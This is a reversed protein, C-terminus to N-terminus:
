SLDDDAGGQLPEPGSVGVNPVAFKGSAGSIHSSLGPSVGRDIPVYVAQTIQQDVKKYEIVPNVAVPEKFYVTSEIFVRYYFKTKFAKPLIFTIVDIEPVYTLRDPWDINTGSSTGDRINCDTPLWGLRVRGTQIPSFKDALIQKEVDTVASFTGNTQRVLRNLGSSTYNHAGIFPAVENGIEGINYVLPKAYRSFGQQLQFKFWRPDLLTAYYNNMDGLEGIQEGNTIRVLGPNFMDRPDVTSEGAEYSLGTPDVPLTSAPVLKVSVPGLKYYKYCAFQPLCRAKVYDGGATVTFKTFGTSSSSIDFFQTFKVKMIM